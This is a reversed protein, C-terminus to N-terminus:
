APKGLVFGQEVRQEPPGSRLWDLLDWLDVRTQNNGGENTAVIALRGNDCIRLEVPAEEMYERVGGLSIGSQHLDM